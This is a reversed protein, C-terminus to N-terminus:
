FRDSNKYCPSELVDIISRKHAMEADIFTNSATVFTRALEKIEEPVNAKAFIADLMANRATMMSQLCFDLNTQENANLM